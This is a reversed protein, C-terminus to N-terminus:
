EEFFDAGAAIGATDDALKARDHAFGAATEAGGDRDDAFL